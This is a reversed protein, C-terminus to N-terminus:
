RQTRAWLDLLATERARTLGAKRDRTLGREQEWALAAAITEELPRLRLGASRAAENRRTAFGAYAPLPLWLPLSEPGAWPAVDHEALWHPPVPVWTPSRGVRRACAELVTAMSHEDGVANFIGHTRTEACDLLWTTLDEVDIVQVSLQPSDPILVPSAVTETEAIRAPWYGFRDSRDGYGAILGARAILVRDAPLAALCAQECTVKAAGYEERTVEGTGRWPEHLPASEDTDPTADDRYASCSSVYIWIGARTSLATLASRVLDPQWSVDLVADWDTGAVEQYAGSAWRDARVHRAGDPVDGSEGRALCTVQHGRDVARRALTGGLWSTGGLILVRLPDDEARDDTRGTARGRTRDPTPGTPRSTM